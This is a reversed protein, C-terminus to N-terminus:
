IVKRSVNQGAADHFAELLLRQGSGHAPIGLPRGAEAAKKQELM